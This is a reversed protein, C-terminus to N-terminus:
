PSVELRGEDFMVRFTRLSIVTGEAMTEPEDGAGGSSAGGVEYRTVPSVTVGSDDVAEVWLVRGYETDFLSSGRTIQNGDVDVEQDGSHM